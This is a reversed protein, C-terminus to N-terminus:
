LSDLVNKFHNATDLNKKSEWFLLREILYTVLLYEKPIKIKLNQIYYNLAQNVEPSYIVDLVFQPKKNGIAPDIYFNYFDELPPGNFIAEEFDYILPKSGYLINWPKFDRHVLGLPLKFDDQLNINSKELIFEDCFASTQLKQKLGTIYDQWSIYTLKVSSFFDVLIKSLNEPKPPTINKSFYKPQSLNFSCFDNNIQIESIESILFSYSSNLQRYVEIENIVNSYSKGIAFKQFCHNHHNIIIKDRTSSVLVSNNETLNFDIKRGVVDACYSNVAELSKLLKFNLKGIILLMGHLVIKKLKGFLNIPKYFKLSENINKFSNCCIVYTAGNNGTIIYFV